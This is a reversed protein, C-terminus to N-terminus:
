YRLDQPPLVPRPARGGPTPPPPPPTYYAGGGSPAAMGAPVPVRHGKAYMCQIYSNDYRQQSSAGAAMAPGSGMMGGMVLGSGGGLAAGAAPNGVAAGLLAGTAAGLITGVAASQVASGNAIQGPSTGTQQQSYFRCAQDDASFRPFDAQNGPMVLVSPGGPGTTACGALSVAAMVALCRGLGRPSRGKGELDTKKM